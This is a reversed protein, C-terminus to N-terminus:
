SKVELAFRADNHDSGSLVSVTHFGFGKGLGAQRRHKVADNLASRSRLGGLGFKLKAANVLGHVDREVDLRQQM